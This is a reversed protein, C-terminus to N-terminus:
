CGHATAGPPSRRALCSGCGGGARGQGWIVTSVESRRPAPVSQPTNAASHPARPSDPSIASALSASLKARPRSSVNMAWRSCTRFPAPHQAPCGPADKTLEAHRGSMAARCGAAAGCAVPLTSVGVRKVHCVLVRGGVRAGPCRRAAGRACRARSSRCGAASAGRVRSRAAGPSRRAAPRSGRRHALRTGRGQAAGRVAGACCASPM